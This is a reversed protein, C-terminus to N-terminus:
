RFSVEEGLHTIVKEVKQPNKQGYCILIASKRVTSTTAINSIAKEDVLVFVFVFVFNLAKKQEQIYQFLGTVFPGIIRHLM